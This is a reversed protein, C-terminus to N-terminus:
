QQYFVFYGLILNTAPVFTGGNTIIYCSQTTIGKLNFQRTRNTLTTQAGAATITNWLDWVPYNEVQTKNNGDVFTVLPSSTLIPDHLVRFSIADVKYNILFPAPQFFLKTNNNVVSGASVILPVSYIKKAPQM